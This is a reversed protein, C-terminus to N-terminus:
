RVVLVDTDTGALAASSESRLKRAARASIVPAAVPTQLQSTMDAVACRMQNFVFHLLKPQKPGSSVGASSGKLAQYGV